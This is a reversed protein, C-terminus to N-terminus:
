IKVKNAKITENMWALSALNYNEWFSAKSACKFCIIDGNDAEVKGNELSEGCKDCRIANLFRDGSM